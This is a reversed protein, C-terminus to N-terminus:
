WWTPYHSKRISPKVVTLKFSMLMIKDGQEYGKFPIMIELSVSGDENDKIVKFRKGKWDSYGNTYEVIDGPKFKTIM